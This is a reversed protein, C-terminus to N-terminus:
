TLRGLLVGIFLAIFGAALHMSVNGIALIWQSSRFLQSSELILTSFTTFAGLFGVLAAARLDTLLIFRGAFLTYLYGALMCGITNAVFTGWPFSITNFKDVLGVVGYRALTGVSGAVAVMLIKQIM